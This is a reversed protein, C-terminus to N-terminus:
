CFLKFTPNASKPDTNGGCTDSSLATLSRIDHQNSPPSNFCSSSAILFSQTDM